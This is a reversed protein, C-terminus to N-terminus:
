TCMMGGGITPPRLMRELGSLGMSPIKPLRDNETLTEVLLFLSPFVEFTSPYHGYGSLLTHERNDWHQINGLLWATTLQIIPQCSHERFVPPRIIPHQMNAMPPITHQTLFTLALQHSRDVISLNGKDEWLWGIVDNAVILGKSLRGVPLDM